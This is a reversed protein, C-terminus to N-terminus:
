AATTGRRYCILGCDLCRAAETKAMEQTLGLEEETLRHVEDGMEVAEPQQRVAPASVGIVRDVNLLCSDPRIVREPWSVPQGTLAQHVSRALKRGAGIAEVAAKYDSMTSSPDFIGIRGSPSPERYADVTRWRVPGAPEEESESAVASPISVFILEPYRVLSSVVWNVQLTEESGAILRPSFGENCADEAVRMVELGTLRDEEGFLATAVAGFEFVVGKGEASATDVGAEELADRTKGAVITVTRAGAERLRVAMNVAAKSNGVVAVSQNEPIPKEGRAMAMALPMLLLNGPIAAEPKGKERLIMSDWGGSALAVTQYGEKLLGPLTIDQGMTVGTRATVGTELIGEIEWDLVKIPLRYDAIVKRLIGGLEPQAEFVSPHHGLRALFYAATLGEVGGGIVAAKKGTDPAKPPVIRSGSTMEYDAAFRKLHNINIPEDVLGRRCEYECPHPCIRGCVLPFPNSLKIVEVAKRYDGEAIAQIYDPIRIEAPCTRQCPATCEDDQYLHEIKESNSTLRIIHKPCVRECTGCGTCLDADVVPLGSPSLSLAGFPCAAVCTGLGLCGVSCEKAGGGLLMAARCDMVGDYAYKLDAADLGYKCGPQAIEPETEGVEMGLIAAVKEAVSAGGAVCANPALSGAVMAAAASSCGASGCGGCNAGPLADEVELIKPDIYVYFLKSAIGLGLGAVLGLGGIALAASLM